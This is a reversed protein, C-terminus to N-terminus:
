LSGKRHFIRYLIGSKQCSHKETINDLYRDGNVCYRREKTEGVFSLLLSFRVAALFEEAGGQTEEDAGALM